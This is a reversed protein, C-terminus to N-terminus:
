FGRISAARTSDPQSATGLYIRGIVPMRSQQTRGVAPWAAASGLGAILARRNTRGVQM